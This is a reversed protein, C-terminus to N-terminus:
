YKLLCPQYLCALLLSLWTCTAMAQVMRAKSTSSWCRRMRDLCPASSTRTLQSSSPRCPNDDLHFGTLNATRLACRPVPKRTQICCTGDRGYGAVRVDGCTVCQSARLSVERLASDRTVDQRNNRLVVKTALKQVFHLKGGTGAAACLRSVSGLDLQRLAPVATAHAAAVSFAAAAFAPSSLLERMQSLRM